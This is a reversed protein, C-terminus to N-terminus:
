AELAKFALLKDRYHEYQQRRNRIENPLGSGLDTTLEEFKDLLAVIENQKDLPPLPIPIKALSKASVDIVKTGVAYKAKAVQFLETQFYFALYKPNQKHRIVTAHGGTVAIETGLWALAKGVDKINESTNTIVIDGPLVKALKTAERGICIVKNRHGL